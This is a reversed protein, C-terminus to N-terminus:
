KIPSLVYQLCDVTGPVWRDIPFHFRVTPSFRCYILGSSLANVWLVQPGHLEEFLNKQSSLMYNTEYRLLDRSPVPGKLVPVCKIVPINLNVDHSYFIFDKSNTQICFWVIGIDKGSVLDLVCRIGANSMLNLKWRIPQKFLFNLLLSSLKALYVNKLPPQLLQERHKSSRVLVSHLFWPWLTSWPVKFIRSLITLFPKPPMTLILLILAWSSSM